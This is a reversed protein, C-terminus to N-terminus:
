TYKYKSLEIVGNQEDKTLVQVQMWNRQLPKDLSKQPYEQRELRLKRCHQWEKIYATLLAHESVEWSAYFKEGNYEVLADSGFHWMTVIRSKPDPVPEVSEPECCNYM